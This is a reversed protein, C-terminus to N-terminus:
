QTFVPPTEITIVFRDVNEAAIVMYVAGRGAVVTKTVSGPFRIETGELVLGSQEDVVIMRFRANEPNKVAYLTSTMRWVPSPVTFPETIGGHNEEVYAFAVSSNYQWNVDSFGYIGMDSPLFRVPFLSYDSTYSIRKMTAPPPTPLSTPPFITEQAPSVPAPTPAPTTTVVEPVQPNSHAPPSLVVTLIIVLTLGILVAALDGREM